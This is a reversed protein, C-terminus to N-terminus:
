EGTEGDKQPLVFFFCRFRVDGRVALCLRFVSLDRKWDTDKEAQDGGSDARQGAGATRDKDHRQQYDHANRDFCGHADCKKVGDKDGNRGTDSIRHLTIDEGDSSQQSNGHDAVPDAYPESAM